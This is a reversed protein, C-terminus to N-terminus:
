LFSIDSRLIVDIFADTRIFHRLLHVGLCVPPEHDIGHVPLSYSHHVTRYGMAPPEGEMPWLADAAPPLHRQGIQTIRRYHLAKFAGDDNGIHLCTDAISAPHSAQLKLNAECSRQCVVSCSASSIAATTTENTM